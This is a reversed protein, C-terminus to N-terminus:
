KIYEMIKIILISLMLGTGVGIAFNKGSMVKYHMTEGRSKCLDDNLHNIIITKAQENEINTDQEKIYDSKLRKNERALKNFVVEEVHNYIDIVLEQCDVYTEGDIEKAIKLAEKKNM